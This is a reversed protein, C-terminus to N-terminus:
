IYKFTNVLIEYDDISVPSITLSNIYPVHFCVEALVNCGEYLELIGAQFQNLGIENNELSTLVQSTFYATCNNGYHLKLVAGSGLHTHNTESLYCFSTKPIVHKVTFIRTTM